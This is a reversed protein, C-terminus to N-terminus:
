MDPEILLATGLNVYFREPESMFHLPAYCPLAVDLIWGNAAKDLGQAKTRTKRWSTRFMPCAYLKSGPSDSFLVQRRKELSEPQSLSAQLSADVPTHLRGERAMALQHTEFPQVHLVPVPWPFPYLPRPAAPSASSAGHAHASKGSVSRETLPRLEGDTFDWKASILSLGQLLIGAALSTKNPDRELIDFSLAISDIPLRSHRAFNLSAAGVLLKPFFFAPLWMATPVSQQLWKDFFSVSKNILDLYGGLPKRSLSSYKIWGPPIRDYHLALALQELEDTFVTAGDLFKDLSMLSSAMATLLVNKAEIEHLLVRNRHEDKSIPHRHNAAQLDFTPPITELLLKVKLRTDQADLVRQLRTEGKARDEQIELPRLFHSDQLREIHWQAQLAFRSQDWSRDLGFLHAGAFAPLGFAYSSFSAVDDVEPVQYIGDDTYECGDNILGDPFFTAFLARLTKLDHVDEIQSAYVTDALAQRVDKVTVQDLQHSVQKVQQMAFALDLASFDPARNWGVPGYSSRESLAAHMMCAAFLCRKFVRNQHQTRHQHMFDDQRMPCTSYSRLLGARISAPADWVVRMSMRYIGKSLFVPFSTIWLRFNDDLATDDATALRDFGHQLHQSFDQQMHANRVFLWKGQEMCRDLCGEFALLSSETAELTLLQQQSGTADSFHRSAFEEIDTTPDTGPDIIFLLPITCMSDEYAAEIEVPPMRSVDVGCWNRVFAAMGALISGPHFIRLVLLKQFSSLRASLAGPLAEELPRQAQIYRQWAAPDAAFSGGLGDKGFIVQVPELASLRCAAQWQSDSIWGFGPHAKLFGSRAGTRGFGEDLRCDNEDDDIEVRQTGPIEAGVPVRFEGNTLFHQWEEPHLRGNSLETKAAVLFAFLLHHKEYLSRVLDFFVARTLGRGLEELDRRLAPLDLLTDELRQHAIEADIDVDDLGETGACLDQFVSANDRLIRNKIDQNGAAADLDMLALTVYSTQVNQYSLHLPSLMCLAEFVSALPSAICTLMAARDSAARYLRLNAMATRRAAVWDDRIRGLSEILPEDLILDDSSDALFNRPDLDVLGQASALYEDLRANKLLHIPEAKDQLLGQAICEELGHRTLNFDVLTASMAKEPAFDPCEDRTVMYLRFDPNHPVMVDAIFVSQRGKKDVLQQSALSQLALPVGDDADALLVPLGEEVAFRLKPLYEQKASLLMLGNIKERKQIWSSFVGHPDIILPAKFCRTVICANSVSVDDMPLGQAVLEKRELALEECDILVRALDFVHDAACLKEAALLEIWSATVRARTEAPLGGLCTLAGAALLCDVDLSKQMTKLQQARKHWDEPFNVFDDTLIAGFSQAAQTERNFDAVAAELDSARASLDELQKRLVGLQSSAEQHQALLGAKEEKLTVLEDQLHVVKTKLKEVDNRVKEEYSLVQTVWNFVKGAGTCVREISDHNFNKKNCFRLRVIHAGQM